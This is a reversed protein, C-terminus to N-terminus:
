RLRQVWAALVGLTLVLWAALFTTVQWPVDPWAPGAAGAPGYGRIELYGGATAGLLVVASVLYAATVVPRRVMEHHRRRLRQVHLYAGTLSLGSLVLGFMFWLSKVALGAFNGFHLPDATDVWRAALPLASADQRFLVQGTSPDLFLKNSRDRVLVADAQGDVGFVAGWYGGPLTFSRIELEPWHRRARDLLEDVSMQQAPLQKSWRPTQPYDLDVGAAEIFYWIGTAAVVVVFWLSWVGSTKHLDSWFVAPGRGWKVDLWRQWWRKYFFLATVASALLPLSLACVLYYGWAGTNFFLNMHFSRFFRQVSFYSQVGTVQAAYPDVYVRGLTGQADRVIVEAAHGPAEPLKVSNVQHSPLALRVAGITADWRHPRDGGDPIRMAPTLLRDIEPTFVAVTGSWCIVFLLLGTTLGIWTHWWLWTKGKGV